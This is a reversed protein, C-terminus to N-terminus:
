ITSLHADSKSSCGEDTTTPEDCLPLTQEDMSIPDSTSKSSSPENNSNSSSSTENNSNSSFIKNIQDPKLHIHDDMQDSNLPTREDM